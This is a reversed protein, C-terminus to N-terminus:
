ADEVEDFQTLSGSCSQQTMPQTVKRTRASWKGIMGAAAQNGAWVESCDERSHIHPPPGNGPTAIAEIMAFAGGTDNASCKITCRDAVVWISQGEGARLVGNNM